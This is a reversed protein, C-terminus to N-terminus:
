VDLHAYLLVTPAGPPAPWHAVVGPHGGASVVDVSAAGTGRALEAVQEAAARVDAAHAPDSSVSPVAVLAELDARATPLVAALARRLDATDRADTM